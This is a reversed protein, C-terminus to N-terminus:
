FKSPPTFSVSSPNLDRDLLGLIATVSDAQPQTRPVFENLAEYLGTDIFADQHLQRSSLAKSIARLILEVTKEEGVLGGILEGMEILTHATVFGELVELTASLILVAILSYLAIKADYGLQIEKAAELVGLEVITSVTGPFRTCAAAMMRFAANKVYEEGVCDRVIDRLTPFLQTLRAEGETDTASSVYLSVIYLAYYVIKDVSSTQIMRVAINVISPFEEVFERQFHCLFYLGPVAEPYFQSCENEFVKVFAVCLRRRIAADDKRVSLRDQRALARAFGAAEPVGDPDELEELVNGILHEVLAIQGIRYGVEFVHMFIEFAVGKLERVYNEMGKAIALILGQCIVDAALAPGGTVCSDIAYLALRVISQDSDDAETIEVFPRLQM